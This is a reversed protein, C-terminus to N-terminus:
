LELRPRTLLKRSQTYFRLGVPYAWRRGGRTRRQSDSTGRRGDRRGSCCGSHCGRGSEDFVWRRRFLHSPAIECSRSRGKNGRAAATALGGCGIPGFACRRHYCHRRRIGALRFHHHSGALRRRHCLGCRSEACYRQPRAHVASGMDAVAATAAVTAVVVPAGTAVVAAIAVASVAHAPRVGAPTCRNPAPRALGVGGLM